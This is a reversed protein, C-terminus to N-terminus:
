VQILMALLTGLVVLPAYAIYLKKTMRGMIMSALAHIPLLNIIFTYGGWSSVMYLYALANLTGWALSGTNLTKVYLYFTLVLAFIAIGENDYSGAVSRSIYSYM